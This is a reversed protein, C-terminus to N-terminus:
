RVSPQASQESYMRAEVGINVLAGFSCPVTYLGGSPATCRPLEPKSAEPSLLQADDNDFSHCSWECLADGNAPERKM